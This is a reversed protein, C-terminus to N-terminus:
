IVFEQLNYFIGCCPQFGSDALKNKHCRMTTDDTSNDFYIVLLESYIVGYLYIYIYIYIYIYM